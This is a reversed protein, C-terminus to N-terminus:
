EAIGHTKVDHIMQDLYYRAKELDQLKGETKGHKLNWRCVYKIVNGQCAWVFNDGLVEKIVDLCQIGGYQYHDPKSVMPDTSTESVESVNNIYVM